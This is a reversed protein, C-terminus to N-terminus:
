RPCASPTSWRVTPPRRRGVARGAVGAAPVRRRHRRQGPHHRGPRREGPAADTAGRLAEAAQAAWLATGNPASPPTSAPRPPRDHDPRGPGRGGRHDRDHHPKGETPTPTEEPPEDDRRRADTLDTIQQGPRAVEAQDDDSLTATLQAGAFAPVAVQAVAVLDAATVHGAEVTVDNLEVSLADRLGESAEVLAQDGDPTRAIPSGWGCRRRRRRDAEVAYGLPTLAATSASCSSRADPEGPGPDRRRRHDASRRVHLGEGRLPDRHGRLSAPRPTPPRSRPRPPRPDPAYRRTELGTLPRPDPTPRRRPRDLRHHRVRGATRGPGRRGHVPPGRHADMYLALGYDLWQQNRGTMTQYELSAGQATADLMMAPMNALRAVDLASANRAGLQLADSDVRHEVLEIANNTFLIGDNDAM